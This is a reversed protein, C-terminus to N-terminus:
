AKAMSNMSSNRGGMFVLIPPLPWRPNAAWFETDARAEFGSLDEGTRRRCVFNTPGSAHTTEWEAGDFVIYISRMALRQLKRAAELAELRKRFMEHM